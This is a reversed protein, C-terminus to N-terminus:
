AWMRQDEENQSVKCALVNQEGEGGGLVCRVLVIMKGVLVHQEGEGECVYVYVCVWVCACVCVSMCVYVCGFVRVGWKGATFM